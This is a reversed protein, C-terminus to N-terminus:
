AATDMQALLDDLLTDLAPRYRASRLGLYRFVPAEEAQFLLKFRGKRLEEPSNQDREFTTPKYDLICGEAKLDRLISNMTNLVAQITQGTLNFKGLYFKLTRLFIIHIYDRGRTVNYFRWLDDSGANDTGIFIFGGDAIATEVGAEGRVIVSGNNALIMQAETAGDTLSYDIPRNPGVIGYVPQNAWSHFPRGGKEHDRRVAIGLVTGISDIDTAPSGTKGWTEVPILRFSNLTERWDNFAEVTSHPGSVPAHAILQNLVAPLAVTVINALDAVTATATAGTGGGGTFAVTPAGTYDSGPNTITVSVVKGANPGTGLVATGAAGTGGGGTFAVAPASTYNAGGNAVTVASVGTERQYTHGPVGVLRPVVGLDAGSKLLAHIGTRLALNGVLNALTEAEDAGEEVRVMVVRASVQFEGLQANILELQGVLSGTSGLALTAVANDSFVLVPQNLPFILPNADPATGVLGLVAMDATSAPRPENDIRQIGIGFVPDSM